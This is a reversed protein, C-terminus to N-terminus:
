NMKQNVFNVMKHILVDENGQQTLLTTFLLISFEVHYTLERISANNEKLRPCAEKIQFSQMM